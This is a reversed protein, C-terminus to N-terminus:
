CSKSEVVSIIQGGKLRTVVKQGSEVHNSERIIKGTLIDSTISYGRLLTSEPSLLLINGHAKDYASRFEMLRKVSTEILRNLLWSLRDKQLKVFRSPSQIVLRRDLEIIKSNALDISRKISSQLDNNLEDLLQNSIMLKREPHAQKLRHLSHNLERRLNATKDFVLVSVRKFASEIFGKQSCVGETILEAAASPTSARVDAVFDTILIDIEHGVASVIPLNSEFVARALVEENFAWLDEMSGGGRTLLILDLSGSNIKEWNNLRKIANAMELSAGDGQVRCPVLVLELASYRRQIVNIVDRLAAGSGSTIVGIRQPYKPLNVKKNAEFLGELELKSKLKEFQVQLAGRGKLEVQRVIVQYQGRPEYLTVDCRIVVLEGDKLVGHLDSAVGRFLACNIQGREDKISFYIHGSAQRRLGTIQGEVWVSGLQGEILTKVARNLDTVTYVKRSESNSSLLDGFEWQSHQKRSM